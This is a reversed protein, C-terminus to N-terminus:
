QCSSKLPLIQEWPPAFEKKLTGYWNLIIEFVFSIIKQNYFKGGGGGGGGGVGGKCFQSFSINM